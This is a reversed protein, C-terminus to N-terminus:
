KYNVYKKNGLKNEEGLGFGFGLGWFGM